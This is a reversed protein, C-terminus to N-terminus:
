LYSGMWLVSFILGQIQGLAGLFWLLWHPITFDLDQSSWLPEPRQGLCQSETLDRCPGGASLSVDGPGHPHCLYTTGMREFVEINKFTLKIILFIILYFPFITRIYSEFKNFSVQLKPWSIITNYNQTAGPDRCNYPLYTFNGLSKHIQLYVHHYVM